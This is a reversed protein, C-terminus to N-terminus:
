AHQVVAPPAGSVVDAADLKQVPPQSEEVVVPAIFRYGRKALTEIFRPNEASDGLADRIKNIASAIGREFDITTNDGWVEHQLQERTVVEGPKSLLAALVRFPQVQLRVRLGAKRIEGAGLDVEFTGFSVIARRSADIM